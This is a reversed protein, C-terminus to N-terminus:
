DFSLYPTLRNIDQETFEDLLALRDISEIRGKRERIDVIIKTQNYDIYPHKNLEKFSASNIKLKTTNSKIVLYPKIKNYLDEDLGWVEKLQSIQAYGGLINRYKVIRNAYSTGIGPIKKLETTDASNLEITEGKNLKKQYSYYVPQKDTNSKGSESQSLIQEKLNIEKEKQTSKNSTPKTFIYACGAIVILVLLTIIANRDRKQFYFFDKWNM